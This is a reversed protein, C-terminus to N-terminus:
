TCLPQRAPSSFSFVRVYELRPQQITPLGRKTEYRYFPLTFPMAVFSPFLVREMISYDGGIWEVAVGPLSTLPLRHRHHKDTKLANKM